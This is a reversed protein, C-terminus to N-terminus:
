GTEGVQFPIVEGRTTLDELVRIAKRKHDPSLHAYRMTIQLTKHGALEAITPIPVGRMALHSCFTHRLTHFTCDRLRAKKVAKEFQRKVEKLAIGTAPNCFVFPSDDFIRERRKLLTAKVTANMPVYRAQRNKPDRVCIIEREFDIDSWELNLVEGRRMGTHLAMTVVDTLYGRDFEKCAMLLRDIEEESLFRLRKNNEPLAKIGACPNNELYGWRIAMNFLHRLTATLRNITAPRVERGTRLNRREHRFQEIHWTTIDGLYFNGFQDCLTKLLRIKQPASKNNAKVWPIYHKEVFDRFKIRPPAKKKDLFKGEKIEVKRKALVTEALQRNPGVRERIRRGKFYFEIWYNKHKAERLNLGCGRCKATSSSNRRKCRPCEVLVAM